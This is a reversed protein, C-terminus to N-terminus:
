FTARVFVSYRRDASFWGKPLATPDTNTTTRTTRTIANTLNVGQVGLKINENLTFVASADLQGYAEAFVPLNPAVSDVETLLNRSRWTYAVRGEFWDKAYIGVLNLNHKSLNALPLNLAPSITGVSGAQNVPFFATSTANTDIFTYNGQFGLGSLVGPLSTYFQQYGIEFGKIKAKAGNVVTQYEVDRTVGNNTFTRLSTGQQFQNTLAKYFGGITLSGDKAFYWEWSLDFNVSEEPRLNPNGVSSAVYAAGSGEPNRLVASTIVCQPPLPQDLPVNACAPITGVVAGSSNLGQLQAANVTSFNRLFGLGPRSIAKSAAFRVYMNDPLDFRINFSPLFKDYTNRTGDLVQSGGNAFAFDDSSLFCRPDTLRQRANAEPSLGPDNGTCYIPRGGLNSFAVGGDTSNRYNIYRVGANAKFPVSGLEGKFNLRLYAARDLQATRNVEAPRYGDVAGARQAAPFWRAFSNNITSQQSQAALATALTSYEEVGAYTPFLLTPYSNGTHGFSNITVEEVDLGANPLYDAEPAWFPNIIGWNYASWKATQDTDNIRFGAQVSELWEGGVDYEADFRGAYERGQIDEIHDLATFPLYNGQQLFYNDPAGPFPADIRIDPIANGNIGAFSYTGKNLMTVFFDTQDRESDVYQGDFDFKLRDTVNWTLHASYDATTRRTSQVRTQVLLNPGLLPQLNNTPYPVNAPFVPSSYPNPEIFTGAVVNDGDLELTTGPYVRFAGQNGDVYFNRARSTEEGRSYFYQLTLELSQDNSRWQLAASRGQRTRDYDQRTIETNDPVTLTRGPILATERFFGELLVGDVRTKLESHAFNLLVGVDGIGTEWRKSIVGSVTPTLKQRLDGYSGDISVAYFDKASDFPLRTRINITGAIAGEIMDATQNKYVDVGATIEPTIDEFSLGRGDFVNASFSDRGNFNTRTKNLGRILVASGETNFRSPDNGAAFRSISVGPVRQLAEAISRDPLAGIDSATISDVFTDSERKIAQSNAISSRIGTVVIATAPDVEAEEEAPPAPEAQQAMIPAAHAAALVALASVGGRFVSKSSQCASENVARM